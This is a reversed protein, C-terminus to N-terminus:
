TPFNRRRKRRPLHWGSHRADAGNQALRQNPRHGRWRPRLARGARHCPSISSPPGVVSRRDPEKTRHHIRTTYGNRATAPAVRSPRATATRAGAFDSRVVTDEPGLGALAPNQNVQRQRRSPGHPPVAIASRRRSRLTPAICGRQDRRPPLGKGSGPRNARDRSCAPPATANDGRPLTADAVAPGGLIPLM